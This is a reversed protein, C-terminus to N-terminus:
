FLVADACLVFLYTVAMFFVMGIADLITEIKERM